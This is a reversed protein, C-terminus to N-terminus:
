MRVAFTESMSSATGFYPWTLTLLIRACHRIEGLLVMPPSESRWRRSSM